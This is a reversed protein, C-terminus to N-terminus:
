LSQYGQVRRRNSILFAVIVLLILIAASVGVIIPVVKNVAPADMCDLAKWSFDKSTSNRFAELHLCSVGFIVGGSLSINQSPACTFGMTGPTEFFSGNVSVSLAGTSNTHPFVDSSVFYDFGIAHVVTSGSRSPSRPLKQIVMTLNFPVNSANPSWQFLINEVEDGCGGFVSANKGVVFSKTQISQGDFYPIFLEMRAQIIVNITGNCVFEFKPVEDTSNTTSAEVISTTNGVVAKTSGFAAIESGNTSTVDVVFPTLVVVMLAFVVSM